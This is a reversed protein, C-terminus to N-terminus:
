LIVFDLNKLGQLAQNELSLMVHHLKKTHIKRYIPHLRPWKTLTSLQRAFASLTNIAIQSHQCWRNKPTISLTGKSDGGDWVDPTQM